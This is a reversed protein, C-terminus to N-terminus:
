GALEGGHDRRANRQHLGELDDAVAVLLGGHLLQDEVDLGVDLAARRQMLREGLMRQVEVIQEHIEDLRALM